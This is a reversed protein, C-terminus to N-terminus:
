FAKMFIAASTVASAFPIITSIRSDFEKYKRSPVVVIDSPYLQINQALYYGYDRLNLTIIRVDVGEQRFIKIYKLNAYHLFGGGLAFLEFLNNYEKDIPYIGPNRIEGLLTLSRNLVKVDVIPNVVWEGFRVKLSDKLEIITLDVALFTGLKPIEINGLADVMLWKGYVENSNYIGYTSGVSLEDQGWVSLSIKDDNRIVYQYTSDYGLTSDIL